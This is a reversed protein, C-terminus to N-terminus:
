VLEPELGYPDINLPKWLGLFKGFLFALVLWIIVRGSDSRRFLKRVRKAMFFRM